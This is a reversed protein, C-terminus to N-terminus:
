PEASSASGSMVSVVPPRSCARKESQQLEQQKRWWSHLGTQKNASLASTAASARHQAGAEFLAQQVLCGEIGGKFRREDHWFRFKGSNRAATAPAAGEQACACLKILMCAHM